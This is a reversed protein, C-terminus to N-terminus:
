IASIAERTEAAQTTIAEQLCRWLDTAAQEWAAPDIDSQDIIEHFRKHAWGFATEHLGNSDFYRGISCAHPNRVDDSWSFKLPQNQLARCAEVISLHAAYAGLLSCPERSAPAAKRGDLWEMLAAEPMPRAIAYGQAGEVGLVGLAHMIEATEVGEVILPKHLGRALSLMASVFHLGEPARQLERVFAQDLKIKDVSLERLRNLSSYGSGVDDLAIGIGATRLEQFLERAACPNPFEADELVELTIRDADMRHLSLAELLTDLFGRRLMVSPSVNFSMLLGPYTRDCAALTALGNPLSAFLLDRLADTSLCPLFMAPQILNSGNVLRALTEVGLVKGSRLSIIPQYHNVVQGRALLLAYRAPDSM